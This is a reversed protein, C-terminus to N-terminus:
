LAVGVLSYHGFRPGALKRQAEQVRYTNVFDNFDQGCGANIVKSLLAPYTRLGQALETLTLEPELRPREDAMLRLLRERWPLL